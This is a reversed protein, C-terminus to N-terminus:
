RKAANYRAYNEHKKQVTQNHPPRNISHHRGHRPMPINYNVYEAIKKDNTNKSNVPFSNIISSMSRGKSRMHLYGLAYYGCVDSFLGQSDVNSRLLHKGNEKIFHSFYPTYFSPLLGYSDYFEVIEEERPFNFSVWHSGSKNSPDTNAIYGKPRKFGIQKTLLDSPYVGGWEHKLFSDNKARADIQYTNLPVAIARAKDVQKQLRLM